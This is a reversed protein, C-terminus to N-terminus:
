RVIKDPNNRIYDSWSGGRGKANLLPSTLHLHHCLAAAVGDTADLEDLMSENPINLMHQILAAVQEKSANGSGTIAKKITSPSYETVTLGQSIAAVMAAGQARGLKLMTQVNKGYFPAEIALAEPHYRAILASVGEYIRDLREYHSKYRDLRLVGMAVLEPKQGQCALVGYGMLVTGPDIGIIHRTEQETM